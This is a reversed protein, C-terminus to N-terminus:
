PFIRRSRHFPKPFEAACRAVEDIFAAVREPSKRGPSSEVGSSVDVADAQSTSLARCVTQETVGGAIVLPFRAGLPRAVSWDWALANGGPLEGGACEVLFADAPYRAIRRLPCRVESM